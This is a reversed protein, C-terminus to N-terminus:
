KNVAIFNCSDVVSGDASLFEANEVAIFQEDANLQDKLRSEMDQFLMGRIRHTETQIISAVKQKRVQDSFIKGNHDVRTVLLGGTPATEPRPRTKPARMRRNVM